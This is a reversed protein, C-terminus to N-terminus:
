EARIATMPDVALARRTPVVCAALAATLLVLAAAAFSAVDSRSVGFLQTAIIKSGWWALLCGVVAGAVALAVSGTVISRAIRTRTAGLAVRIGIERTRQAVSFAMVGYLGIGALTLALGTFLTLLVMVFRPEAIADSVLKDVGQLKVTAYPDISHALAKVSQLAGAEGSTRVLIASANSDAAASYLVPATSEEPNPGGTQAEAAVGVITLWPENGSHAVRLRKGVPSENPWQKRAFGANIIVAQAAPTTDAFMGGRVLRQGMTAFYNTEVRNVRVFETTTSPPAPRGEIELRGIVFSFWGPPSGALSVARVGNLTSIRGGLARLFEGRAANSPFHGRPATLRITYLGNPEFGLNARQLNRVSQILMSAGVVLSAALAMESVVLIRRLRARSSALREGSKLADHASERAAQVAGLVGFVLSTVVMVGLAIGLTTGDLSARELGALSSPRSGVLARLGLWGGLLGLGGGAAVLLVSESLLQRFMRWRGAGLAIRIALERRRASSRAVLLHAVNASAVLLVLAVAYALLKLSDRFSLQSAPPAVLAKLSAANGRSSPLRNYITDLEAQARAVEIGPRLRGIVTGGVRDDALNLPLWVDITPTVARPTRLSAPMVGVITYLSDDLTIARGIVTRDAGFRTRWLGEGLMVYKGGQVEAATFLRGVTPRAGTFAAFSPAIRAAQLDAPDGITRMQLQVLSYAEIAEFSRANEKWARIAPASPTITVNIGTNNGRSPEQYVLVVRDAGPYSVPHLLLSSVASFVATTAGIGLAFTLVTIATWSKQRGLTRLAFAIDQRLDNFYETRQMRQERHRAAELLQARSENLSGRGFRRVAEAYAEDVGRGELMLQEARLTLHLRIEEEVEHQWRDRRRLALSLVRRIGTRIM